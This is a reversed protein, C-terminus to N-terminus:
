SRLRLPWVAPTRVNESIEIPAVRAMIRLMYTGCSYMPRFFPSGARIAACTTVPIPKRPAPAMICIFPETRPSVVAAPIHITAANPMATPAPMYTSAM